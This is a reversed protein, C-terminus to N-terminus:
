RKRFLDSLIFNELLARLKYDTKKSKEAIAKIQSRDDITMVRRLAFTALQEVFAEAFEDTNEALLKKFQAPGDFARGDPMKGHAKVMPDDGEGTAQETKRYRGIADYNDFAFGLPDIKAHCSACTAHTTHAELQQRITAKPSKAPTPGLPEVNPPPPPPTKAFIAESVLVGRHVPRHRTGDSTASLMSAQALLGGRHDEPRLAVRQFGSKDLPPLKYHMALRPNVMTWKSDLFERISLNRAFVEGFFSSSELIM